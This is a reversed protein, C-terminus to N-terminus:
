ATVKVMTFTSSDTYATCIYIDENTTDLIIAYLNGPDDAETNSAPVGAKMGITVKDGMSRNSNRFRKNEIYKNFLSWLQKRSGVKINTGVAM